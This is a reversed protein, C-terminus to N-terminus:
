CGHSERHERLANLRAEFDRCLGEVLTALSEQENVSAYNATRKARALGESYQELAAAHERALRARTTCVLPADREPGQNRDNM